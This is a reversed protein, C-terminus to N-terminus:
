RIRSNAIPYDTGEANAPFIEVPVTYGFRSQFIIFRNGDGNPNSRWYGIDDKSDGDYDGTVFIDSDEMLILEDIATSGGSWDKAHLITANNFPDILGSLGANGNDFFIGPVQLSATDTENHIISGINELSGSHVSKQFQNNVGLDTILLFDASGDGDHDFGGAPQFDSTIGVETDFIVLPTVRSYNFIVLRSTDVSDKNSVFFALDDVGDGSYDGFQPDVNLNTDANSEFLIPVDNPRSSRRILYKVNSPNDAELEVTIDDIGDGDFDGGSTPKAPNGFTPIHVYTEEGEVTADNEKIQHTLFSAGEIETPFTLVYDSLGTGTFDFQAKKCSGKLNSASFSPLTTSKFEFNSQFIVDSVIAIEPGQKIIMEVTEIVGVDGNVHDSVKLTWTGNSQEPILGTFAGNLLTNCGGNASFENGRTSTRYGGSPLISGISQLSGQWWDLESHDNFLYTGFLISNGGFENFRNVGTRAFLVLQALGDPSELVIELDGIWTHSMTISIDLDEINGSILQQMDLPIEIGTPDNDPIALSVPFSKTILNIDNFVYAAGSEPKNNNDVIGNLNTVGTLDSDEQHAGVAIYGGSVGVGFSFEDGVEAEAAKLYGQESWSSDVKHYVFVAGSEPEDNDFGAVSSDEGLAAVVAINGSIAVKFGFDDRIDTESAKVFAQQTWIVSNNFANITRNYIYAAGSGDKDNNNQDGNIGTANSDEGIAGIIITNGSIAVDIGFLDAAETNSAKIFHTLPWSNGENTFVYAAGSSPANDNFGDGANVGVFDSSEGFAGVVITHGSIAVSYGFRDDEGFNIANLQSDYVWNSGSKKYVQATGTNPGQIPQYPVGVVIKDGSVAVDFGFNVGPVLLFNKLYAEQIWNGNLRVFVYAAGSDPSNDNGSGSNVTTSDSDEFPAGVVITNGSISVSTGFGDFLGENSAKLIAQQSWGNNDRVFVYAAGGDSQNPTGVVMTDGSIAVDSGFRDGATVVDAKIYAHQVYSSNYTNGSKSHGEIQNLNSGWDNSPRGFPEKNLNSESAYISTSTFALFLLIGIQKNM